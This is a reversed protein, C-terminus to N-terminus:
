PLAALWEALPRFHERQHPANREQAVVRLEKLVLPFPLDLAIRGLPREVGERGLEAHLAGNLGGGRRADVGNGELGLVLEHRRQVARRVPLHQQDLARGFHDNLMAVPLLARVARRREIAVAEGAFAVAEGRLALAHQTQGPQGIRAQRRASELGFVQRFMEDQETEYAQHIRWAFLRDFSHLFAVAAADADCHDGAVVLDGRGRDRLHEADSVALRRHRSGLDLRHVVRRQLVAHALDVDEGARAGLVLEPKDLRDLGVPLDDGHGAVADVVRWREFLGIDADGHSYLAGLHRFLRRAHDEGVVIEGRNRRRHLFAAGDVVVDLLRHQEQQRGIDRLACHYRDRDQKSQRQRNGRRLDQPHIHHGRDREAEDDRELRVLGVHHSPVGRATSRGITVRNPIQRM